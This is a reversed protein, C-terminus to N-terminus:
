EHLGGEESLEDRVLSQSDLIIPRQILDVESRKSQGDKRRGEEWRESLKCICRSSFFAREGSEIVAGKLHEIDTNRRVM